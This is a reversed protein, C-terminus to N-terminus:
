TRRPVFRVVIEDYPVKFAVSYSLFLDTFVILILKGEVPFAEDVHGFRTFEGRIPCDSLIGFFNPVDSRSIREFTFIM